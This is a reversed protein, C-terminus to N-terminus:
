QYYNINKKTSKQFVWFTSSFNRAHRQKKIKGSILRAKALLIFRDLVYFGKKQAELWAYEETCYFKGSSITNQCKFVCIGNDKLVRFAEQLWHSYSTFMESAPYYCSFRKIILNSKNIGDNILSPANHPAIVFPLDIVISNISNNDLPLLGDKEIKVVDDFQPVIDFKYKPPTLIIQESSGETNPIYFKGYFGGRSYTMDCDYDQGNNHLQQINYLIEHQNYSVNKIVKHYKM